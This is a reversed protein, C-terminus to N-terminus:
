EKEGTLKIGTLKIFADELTPMSVNVGTIQVKKKRLADIAPEVNEEANGGIIKIRSPVGKAEEGRILTVIEADHCISKLQNEIDSPPHYCAVELVETERVIAKLRNPSDVAVIKGDNVIAVRDCLEDAEKMYHTALLVTKGEEQCLEKIQSRIQLSFTPDLGLTPEDLLLIPPNHLLARAIAVKQRMGTSYDELREDARDSLNMMGLLEDV